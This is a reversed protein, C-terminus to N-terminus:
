ANKQGRHLKSKKDQNVSTAIHAELKKDHQVCGECCKALFRTTQEPMATNTGNEVLGHAIGRPGKRRSVKGLSDAIDQWLSV